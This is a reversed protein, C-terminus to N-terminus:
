KRGELFGQLTDDGLRKKLTDHVERVVGFGRFTLATYLQVLTAGKQYAQWADEGDWIGGCAVIALDPFARHVDEVMRLMYPLLPRGSEGAVPRAFNSTLPSTKTDVPRTNGLVVIHGGNEYFVRISEMRADRGEDTPPLRTYPAVKSSKLKGPAHTNM